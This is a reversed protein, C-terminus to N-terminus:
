ALLVRTIDSRTEADIVSFAVCGSLWGRLMAVTVCRLGSTDYLRTRASRKVLIPPTTPQLAVEM